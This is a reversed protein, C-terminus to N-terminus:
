EHRQWSNIMGDVMMWGPGVMMGYVM